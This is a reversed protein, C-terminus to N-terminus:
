VLDTISEDPGLERALRLMTDRYTSAMPMGGPPAGGPPAPPVALKKLISFKLSKMLGELEGLQIGIDAITKGLPLREWRRAETAKAEEAQQNPDQNSDETRKGTKDPDVSGDAKGGYETWILGALEADDADPHSAIMKSADIDLLMEGINEIPKMIPPPGPPPPPPGPPPGMGGMMPDGMPPAGGPPMPPMPPPMQSEIIRMPGEPKEAVMKQHPGSIVKWCSGVNFFSMPEDCTM